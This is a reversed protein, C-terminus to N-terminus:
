GRRYDKREIKIEGDKKVHLKLSLTFILNTYTLYNFSLDTLNNNICKKVSDKEGALIVEKNILGEGNSEFKFELIKEIEGTNELEEKFCIKFKDKKDLLLETTENLSLLEGLRLRAFQNKSDFERVIRYEEIAHNNDQLKEYTKALGLHYLSNYPYLKILELYGNKADEYKESDFYLNALNFKTDKSENLELVKQVIQIADEKRDLLILCLAYTNLAEIHEPNKDLFIKVEELAYEVYSDPLNPKLTNLNPDGFLIRKAELLNQDYPRIPHGIIKKYRIQDFHSCSLFLFLSLYSLLNLLNYLKSKNMIKYNGNTSKEILLIRNAIKSL